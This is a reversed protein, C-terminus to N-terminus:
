LYSSKQEAYFLYRGLFEAFVLLLFPIFFFGLSFRHTLLMRGLFLIGLLSIGLRLYYLQGFQDMFSQVLGQQFKSGSFLRTVRTPIVLMEFCLFLLIGITILRFAESLMPNITTNEVFIGIMLLLMIFLGGLITATLFFGFPTLISNWWPVTKLMYLKGMSYIFIFGIIATLWSTLTELTSLGTKFYQLYTTVLCLGAFFSALIVERSLWSSHVHRIAKFAILPSGLHGMAILLSGVMMMTIIILSFSFLNEAIKSTFFVQIIMLVWFAGVAAQSLITFLILSLKKM